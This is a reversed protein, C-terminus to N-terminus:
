SRRGARPTPPPRSPPDTARDSPEGHSLTGRCGTLILVSPFATRPHCPRLAVDARGAVEVMRRQSAGGNASKTNRIWGAITSRRGAQCSPSGPIPQCRAVPRYMRAVPEMGRWSIKENVAATVLPDGIVPEELRGACEEHAQDAQQE